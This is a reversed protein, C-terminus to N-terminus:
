SKVIVSVQNFFKGGIAPNEDFLGLVVTFLFFFKKMECLFSVSSSVM